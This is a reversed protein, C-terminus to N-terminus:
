AASTATSPDASMETHAPDTPPALIALLRVTVLPHLVARHVPVTGTLVARLIAAGTRTFLLTGATSFRRVAIAPLERLSEPEREVVITPRGAIGNYVTAGTARFDITASDDSSADYIAVPRGLRRSLRARGPDAHFNDRLLSAVSAAVANTDRGDYREIPYEIDEGSEPDDLSPETIHM